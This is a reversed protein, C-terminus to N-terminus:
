KKGGSNSVALGHGGAKSARGENDKESEKAARKAQVARTIKKARKQGGAESQM